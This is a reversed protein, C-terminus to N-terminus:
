ECLVILYYKSGVSHLIDLKAKVGNGDMLIDYDNAM